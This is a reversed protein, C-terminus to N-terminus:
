WGTALSQHITSAEDYSATVSLFGPDEMRLFIVAGPM